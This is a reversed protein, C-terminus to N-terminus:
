IRVGNELYIITDKELAELAYEVRRALPEGHQRVHALAEDRSFFGYEAIEGDQVRISKIERESIIGGDFVFKISEHPHGADTESNYDVCLLRGIPVELGVEEQIERICAARPSEGSEVTGGLMVWSNSRMQKVALIEGNKNRLIAGTAIRKKPLHEWFDLHAM